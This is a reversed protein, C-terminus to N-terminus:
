DDGGKKRQPAVEEEVERGPTEPPPPQGLASYDFHWSEQHSHDISEPSLTHGLIEVGRPSWRKSLLNGPRPKGTGAPKADLCMTGPLEFEDDIVVPCSSTSSSAVPLFRPEHHVSLVM